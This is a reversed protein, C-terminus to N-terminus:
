RSDLDVLALRQLLQITDDTIKESQARTQASLNHPTCPNIPVKSPHNLKKFDIKVSTEAPKVKQHRTCITTFNSRLVRSWCAKKVLNRFM